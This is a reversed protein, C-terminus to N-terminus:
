QRMVVWRLPAESADGWLGENATWMLWPRGAYTPERWTGVVWLHREIRGALHYRDEFAKSVKLIAPKGAHAEVQNILTMLESEVEAEGVPVPCEDATEDLAIAPPLLDGGRPVLVVFSASQGDAMTCPDFRHVAGVELGAERAAALNAAFAPDRRVGDSADLYVFRAGLAALTGFRVNGDRAAIEAGQHPYADQSPTWHRLEWWGWAGLLVAALVLAALARARWGIGKRKRGM